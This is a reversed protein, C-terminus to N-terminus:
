VEFIRYVGGGNLTQNIAMAVNRVVSGKQQAQMTEVARPM